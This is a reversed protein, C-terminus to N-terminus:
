TSMDPLLRSERSMTVEQSKHTRALAEKLYVVSAYLLYPLPLLCALLFKKASIQRQHLRLTGVYLTFIFPFLYLIIVAISTKQWWQFCTIEANYYWRSVHQITVCDLLRMATGTMASYGLLVIEPIAGLYPGCPPLVPVRKRLKNLCSHLFYIFLISLFIAVVIVVQLLTKTPPTLGPFPCISWGSYPYLKFDLLNILPLVISDRLLESVGYSSITLLGAIQYFYFLIKLYGDSPSSSSADTKNKSELKDVDHYDKRSHSPIFWTLNTMINQFFPPKHILYLAFLTICIFFVVFYWGHTCKKVPICNANFLAESFNKKCKGCLIGTRNGQCGSFQYSANNYPCNQNVACCYGHPCFKFHATDGIPYGWFNPRAALASTCNGGNPCTLCKLRHEIKFGKITGRRISYTGIPCPQTIISFSTIWTPPSTAQGNEWHTFNHLIVKSGFPSQIKVSDDFSVEGAGKVFILGEGDYSIPDSIFSSKSVFIKGFSTVTLFGNYPREKQM